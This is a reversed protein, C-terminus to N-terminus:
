RALRTASGVAHPSSWRLEGMAAAGVLILAWEVSMRMRILGFVVLHPLMYGVMVILLFALASRRGTRWLQVAGSPALLLLALYPATYALHELRSHPPVRGLVWDWYRLAKLPVLALAAAPEDRIRRWALAAAAADIDYLSGGGDSSPEVVAPELAPNFTRDTLQAAITPRHGIVLNQGANAPLPTFRGFRVANAASWALLVAIFVAAARAGARRGEA